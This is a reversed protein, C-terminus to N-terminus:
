FNEFDNKTEPSLYDGGVVVVKIDKLGNKSFELGELSM